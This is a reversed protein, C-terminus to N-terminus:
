CFKFANLETLCMIITSSFSRTCQYGTALGAMEPVTTAARRQESGETYSRALVVSTTQEM